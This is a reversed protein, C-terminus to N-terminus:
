LPPQPVNPPAALERLGEGRPRWAKSAHLLYWRPDHGPLVLAAVARPLYSWATLARVIAAQAAGTTSACTSTATATSSSWAASGRRATPPSSSTTSRAPPPSTSPTSAPTASGSVSTPRTPTSSSAPTSTASRCSRGAACSCRRRSRGASAAPASAAARPSWGGTCSCRRPSRPASARYAGPAPSPAAPRISSSRAPRPRAGPDDRLAGVLAEPAGPLLESDENLLLCLEGRAESLLRTDNAAKGERRELAIVRLADDIRPDGDALEGALEVSGDESANDLLLIEHGVGPPHTSAIAELCASLHERGNTNVICYSLEIETEDAM